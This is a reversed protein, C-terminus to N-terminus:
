SFHKNLLKQCFPIASKKYTETSAHNVQFPESFRVRKNFTPNPPFLRNNKPHKISKLSFDLCRKLRREYLTELKCSELASEYDHCEDGM